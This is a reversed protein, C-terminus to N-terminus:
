NSIIHVVATAGSGGVNHALAFSCEGQRIQRALYAVQKVGTAGVPHGFAKLGGSRNIIFDGGVSTKGEITAQGGKGKAIFGLDEIALIEAITFCDHIEAQQIQQPRVKAQSYAQKAAVSTSQLRTLSKRNALSLTDQAHGWGIVQPKNSTLRSTLIIASAGDSIPSCDLLRLPDAVLPSAVVQEPTIEKKYQALPNTLAHRHNKVAVASLMERSTGYEQQHAQALLAYLGPFTSGYESEYDAASSLISTGDEAVVDTMKEAGVVMVTKYQSSRLAQHAALIALGGSACAGEIRTAPPQHVFLESVLANLHRQGVYSGAAKNAVFIADVQKPEIGADQLSGWVVEQFLSGLDEDWLEGIQTTHQGLISIKM